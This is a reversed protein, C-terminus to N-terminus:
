WDLVPSQGSVWTGWSDTYPEYVVTKAARYDEYDRPKADEYVDGPASYDESDEPEADAMFILKEDKMGMLYVFRCDPNAARIAMLQRRIREFGPRGKDEPTGTLTAVRGPDISSTATLTRSILNRRAGKEGFKGVAQTLFWGLVIVALVMALPAFTIGRRAHEGGASPQLSLLSIVLLFVLAALALAVPFGLAGLFGASNIVTAPFLGSQPLGATGALAYVLFSTGALFLAKRETGHSDRASVFFVWASWVSGIFGLALWSSANFGGVGLSAGALASLILPLLIWRGPGKGRSLGTGARAFEVLFAYSVLALGARASQFAIGDGLDQALLGLFEHVGQLLGFVGLWSWPLRQGQGCMQLCAMAMLLLSLCYIFSIYDLQSAFFSDM